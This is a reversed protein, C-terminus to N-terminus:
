QAQGHFHYRDMHILMIWQLLSMILGVSWASFEYIICATRLLIIILKLWSWAYTRVHMSWHDGRGTLWPHLKHPNSTSTSPPVMCREWGCQSWNTSYLDTTTAATLGRYNVTSHQAPGSLNYLNVLVLLLQLTIYIVYNVPVIYTVVDKQASSSSIYDWQIHYTYLRLTYPIYVTDSKSHHPQSCSPIHLYLLTRTSFMIISECPLLWQIVVGVPLSWNYFNIFSRPWKAYSGKIVTGWRSSQTSIRM